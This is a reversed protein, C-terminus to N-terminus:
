GNDDNRIMTKLIFSWLFIISNMMCNRPVSKFQSNVYYTQSNFHFVLFFLIFYSSFVQKCFNYAYRFFIVVYFRRSFFRLNRKEEDREKEKVQVWTNPFSLCFFVCSNAIANNNTQVSSREAFLLLRSHLFYIIPFGCLFSFCCNCQSSNQLQPTSRSSFTDELSKLSDFPWNFPQATIRALWKWGSTQWKVLFFSLFFSFEKEFGRLPAEFTGLQAITSSM